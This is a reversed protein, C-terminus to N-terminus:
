LATQNIQILRWGTEQNPLNVCPLATRLSAQVSTPVHTVGGSGVRVSRGLWLWSRNMMPAHAGPRGRSLCFCDVAPMPPRQIYTRWCRRSWREEQRPRDLFTLHIEVRAEEGIKKGRERIMM